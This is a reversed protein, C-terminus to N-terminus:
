MNREEREAGRKEKQEEILKRNRKIKKGNTTGREGKQEERLKKNM